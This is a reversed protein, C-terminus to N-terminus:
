WFFSSSKSEFSDASSELSKGIQVWVRDCITYKYDM